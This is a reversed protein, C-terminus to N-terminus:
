ALKPGMVHRKLDGYLEVVTRGSADKKTFSGLRDRVSGDANFIINDPQDSTLDFTIPSRPDVGSAVTSQGAPFTAGDRYAPNQSPESFVPKLLPLAPEHCSACGIQKFLQKGRTIASTQELTLAPELLGLENLELLTTPRPQAAMYVALATQDGITLENTVGDYDGDVNDGVIEVAQMGLENHAAGRNFDRLFAVSGKWQFPRVILQPAAAPNDVSAQFDVGRVEDTNFAVQCPYTNVRTATLTGFGIGKAQLTATQTGGLRCTDSVLRNQDATLADTMEEALRKIAGPAFLHPTNREIFEGIRGTRFPDRHVNSMATGAGDEFPGEHCEFCGQANPGTVRIPAHNFWEKASKLDARPIRSFRQGRGVNAGGGDLANFATAFLDDGIEFAEPFRENQPLAMLAGQDAHEVAAPSHLLAVPGNDSVIAWTVATTLAIICAILLVKGAATHRLM